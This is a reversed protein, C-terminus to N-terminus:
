HKDASVTAHQHLLEVDISAASNKSVLLPLLKRSLFGFNDSRCDPRKFDNRDTQLPIRCNERWVSQMQLGGDRRSVSRQDKTWTEAVEGHEGLEQQVSSLVALVLRMATGLAVDAEPFLAIEFM